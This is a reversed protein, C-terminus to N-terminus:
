DWRDASIISNPNKKSKNIMNKLEHPNTELDSAM